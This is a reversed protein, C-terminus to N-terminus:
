LNNNRREMYHHLAQKWNRMPNRIILNTSSNDLVSFVPRPAVAPFESAKCPEIPTSIGAKSLIEEAFEYRSCQGSNVVHYIGYAKTNVFDLTAQALDFTHTPSGIEDDVVRLAPRTEAARIIKEVFNNGGPGYLWATRLIFHFPNAHQTAVEGAYKSKGYVGLPAPTDGPLYPRKSTGNFVYDTSYYVVPINRTATIEALNRAGIENVRFANQLDDEAQDVNTYAAANIVVNPAFETILSHLAVEDTIDVDPLDYGLTEGQEKFILTLDRGLQGNSGFILTRM